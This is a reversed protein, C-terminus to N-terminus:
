DNKFLMEIISDNTWAAINQKRKISIKKAGKYNPVEYKKLYNLAIKSLVSFNQASNGAQKKSADEGFSVDLSWHLQNEINWHARISENFYQANAIRTSIFYRTNEQKVGTLKDERISDIKILSKIHKWNERNSIWDMDTIVHAERTEIRGHGTNSQKHTNIAKDNAFADQIDDHLFKQNGKVAIICDAQKEVIKEIISHQCGMADITITCGKVNLLDLLNPIATIENSKEEVKQQGLVLNNSSCWASVMHVFYKDDRGKSGRISKGDISLIRGESIRAIANVWDQFCKELAEGDIFEFFRKFTDHSPVGNPLDLFTSLWSKKSDAYDEIDYWDKAGCIIACISIAIINILSHTLYREDRYDPLGKFHVLINHREM